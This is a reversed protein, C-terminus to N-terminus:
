VPLRRPRAPPARRGPPARSRPYRAPRRPRAHPRPRTSADAVPRTTGHRRPAMTNEDLGLSRGRISRTILIRELPVELAKGGRSYRSFGVLGRDAVATDVERPCRASAVHVLSLVAERRCSRGGRIRWVFADRIGCSTLM